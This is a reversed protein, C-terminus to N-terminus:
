NIKVYISNLYFLFQKLLKTEFDEKGGMGYRYGEDIIEALDNLMGRYLWYEIASQNSKNDFDVKNILEWNNVVRMNGVTSEREITLVDFLKVINQLGEYEVLGSEMRDSSIDTLKNLLVNLGNDTLIGLKKEIKTYMRETINLTNELDEM